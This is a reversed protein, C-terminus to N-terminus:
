ASRRPNTTACRDGRQEMFKSVVETVGAALSDANRLAELEKIVAEGLAIPSNQIMRASEDLLGRQQDLRDLSKNLAASYAQLVPITKGEWAEIRLELERLRKASALGLM